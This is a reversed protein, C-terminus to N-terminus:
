DKNEIYICDGIEYKRSQGWDVCELAEFAEECKYFKNNSPIIWDM